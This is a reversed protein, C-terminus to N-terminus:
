NMSKVKQSLLESRVAEQRKELRHTKNVSGMLDHYVLSLKTWAPSVWRSQFINERGAPFCVQKLVFSWHSRQGLSRFFLLTSFVSLFGHHNLANESLYDTLVFIEPFSSFVQTWTQFQVATRKKADRYNMQLGAPQHQLGDLSTKFDEDPESRSEPNIWCPWFICDCHILSDMGHCEM